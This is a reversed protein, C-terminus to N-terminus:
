FDVLVKAGNRSIQIGKDTLGEFKWNVDLQEGVRVVRGDEMVLEAPEQVWVSAIKPLDDTGDARTVANIMQPLNPQDDYWQLFERWAAGTRETYQGSVTLSGDAAMKLTMLTALGLEELKARILEQGMIPMKTEEAIAPKFDTATPAQQSPVEYGAIGIIVAGLLAAAVRMHVAKVSPQEILIPCGGAVMRAPLTVDIYQGPDIERTGVRVSGAIAAIRVKTFPLVSGSIQAHGEFLDYALLVMDDQLGSGIKCGGAPVLVSAGASAGSQITLRLKGFSSLLGNEAM